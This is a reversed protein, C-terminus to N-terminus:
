WMWVLPSYRCQRVGSDSATVVGVGASQIPAVNRNSKKRFSCTTFLVQHQRKIDRLVVLFGASHLFM